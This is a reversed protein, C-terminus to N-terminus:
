NFELKFTSSRVHLGGGFPLRVLHNENPPTGETDNHICQGFSNHYESNGESDHTQPQYMSDSHIPQHNMIRSKIQPTKLQVFETNDLSPFMCIQLLMCIDDDL